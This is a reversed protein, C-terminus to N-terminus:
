NIWDLGAARGKAQSAPEKKKPNAPRVRHSRGGGTTETTKKGSKLDETTVSKRPPATQLTGHRYAYNDAEDKTEFWHQEGYEDFASYKKKSGSGSGSGGRGSPKWLNNKNTQSVVLGKKLETLELNAKNLQPAFEADIGKKTADAEAGDAEAVGKRYKNPMLLGEWYHQEQERAAKERALRQQEHRAQLEQMTKSANIENEALRLNLTDYKDQRAEREKKEKELREEYPKLMSDKQQDYMNPAYQTTFYLNSLSRLGDTVAAVIKKSKEKRLRKKQEEETEPKYRDRAEKLIKEALAFGGMGDDATTAPPAPPSPPAATTTETKETKDGFTTLNKVIEDTGSGETSPPNIPKEETADITANPNKPKEISQPPAVKKQQDLPNKKEADM